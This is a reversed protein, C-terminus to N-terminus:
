GEELKRYQIKGTATLPIEHIKKVQAIKVLKGMGKERLAENIKDRDLDCTTYLVLQPKEGEPELAGLAIQPAAAGPALWEKEQAILTLDEEIGGLGVMEAGIKIFRKLRGSLILNGEADLHGRDGSRYWRKKELTIFPDRKVGLYGGFVNPGFICIEGDAGQPLPKGTEPEIILLEVGPIPKGVGRRPLHPSNSTVVPSCETIGYGELCEARPLRKVFDFLEQPAKEAGSIVYRVRRLQKKRAMKFMGMLFSPACCLLTVKWHDVDAAMQRADTPDPAYCVKLGILLPFLGTVAFGFSHFPPLVAYLVDSKHPDFCSLASKMNSLLNAHTLPVGKPLSETGSTFLLVAREEKRMEKLSLAKLLKPAKKYSLLFAKIKEKFTLRKHFEELLLLREEIKGLDINEARELFRRSSLVVSLQTMELAHDLSRSGVTWNLMVPLKKAFLIALISIYAAVSSPLMVGIYLGPLKKIELSLALVSRKLQHYTFSLEMLGDSCAIRGGMRDCSRLFVEQLTDGPPFLVPKRPLDKPWRRRKRVKEAERKEKKGGVVAQLVDGVSQLEGAALRGVDYADELFSHIQAMDLSDLGLDIWLDNEEQIQDASRHSLASLKAIVERRVVPSVKRKVFLEEEKEAKKMRPLSEKWFTTSVLALSDRKSNYWRELYRNFELREKCLFLDSQAREFEITVERKPFFFLGNKLLDKIAELLMKGFPPVKGSLARSFRSGWLGRTRVLVINADPCEQLLSHVLSSGGLLEREELKLRGAPYVLFNERKRLGSVITQFLKEIQHLKWKNASGNMNPIALAKVLKMFPYIAPAEFFYQIVLPRARYRRWLVTTLIVPDIEAPHNPLFLIGTDPNQAFVQDLGEVRIRYRLRLLARLLLHMLFYGIEKLGRM